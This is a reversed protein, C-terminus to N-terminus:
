ESSPGTNWRSPFVLHISMNRVNHTKVVGLMHFASEGSFVLKDGFSKQEMMQQVDLLIRFSCEYRTSEFTAVMSISLTENVSEKM